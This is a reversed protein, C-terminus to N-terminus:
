EKLPSVIVARWSGGVARPSVAWPSVARVVVSRTETPHDWATGIETTVAKAEPKQIM